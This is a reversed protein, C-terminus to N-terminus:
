GEAATAVSRTSVAAAAKKRGASKKRGATKKRGAGESIWAEVEGLLRHWDQETRIFCRIESWHAAGFGALTRLSKLPGRVDSRDLRGSMWAEADLVAAVAADPGGAGLWHCGLLLTLQVLEALIERDRRRLHEVVEAFLEASAAGSMGLLRAVEVLDRGPHGDEHEPGRCVAGLLIETADGGGGARWGGSDAERCSKGWQLLDGIVQVM